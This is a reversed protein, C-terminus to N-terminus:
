AVTVMLLKQSNYWLFVLTNKMISCLFISFNQLGDDALFCIAKLVQKVLLSLLLFSGLAPCMWQDNCSLSSFMNMQTCTSFFSCCCGEFSAFLAGMKNSFTQHGVITVPKIAVDLFEKWRFLHVRLTLM